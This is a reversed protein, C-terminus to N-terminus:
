PRPTHALRPAIRSHYLGSQNAATVMVISNLFVFFLVGTGLWFLSPRGSFHLPKTYNLGPDGDDAFMSALFGVALVTLLLAVPM